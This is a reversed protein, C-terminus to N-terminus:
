PRTGKMSGVRRVLSWLGALSAGGLALAAILVRLRLGAADPGAILAPPLLALRVLSGSLAGLGLALVGVFRRDAAPEAREPLRLSVIEGTTADTVAAGRLGEIEFRVTHVPYFLLTVDRGVIEMDLTAGPEMGTTLGATYHGLLIEGEAVADRMGVLPDLFAGLKRLGPHFVVVEGMQDLPRHVRLAGAMQRQRDLTPIGLEELPCAAIYALHQREIERRVTELGGDRESTVMVPSGEDTYVREIVKTRRTREGELRGALTTALRWYPVFLTECGTVRAHQAFGREALAHQIAQVSSAANVAPMVVLRHRGEDDEIRGLVGCSSCRALQGPGGEPNPVGGCRPCSLAWTEPAHTAGVSAAM